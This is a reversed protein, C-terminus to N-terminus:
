TVGTPVCKGSSGFKNEQSFVIKEEGYRGLTLFRRFFPHKSNELSSQIIGPFLPDSKESCSAPFLYLGNWIMGNTLSLFLISDKPLAPLGAQVFPISEPKIIKKEDNEFTAAGQEKMKKIWNKM